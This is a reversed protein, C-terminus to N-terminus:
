PAKAETQKLLLQMQEMLRANAAALLSVQQELAVLRDAQKEVQKAQVNRAREAEIAYLTLEEIKALQKTVIESVGLGNDQMAKASPIEPLHRNTKIFTEVESLSRLKYDDAFVYDAGDTTVKIEKASITGIVTLENTPNTTGIGVKGAFYNKATPSSAYLDYRNNNEVTGGSYGDTKIFVGYANEITGSDSLVDAFVGYVNRIRATPASRHIGARAWVGYSQNLTGAFDNTSAYASGDVGIKYGSDEKTAPIKYNVLYGFLAKDYSTVSQTTETYNNVQLGTSSSSTGADTRVPSMYNVLVDGSFRSQGSTDVRIREIGQAIDYLSWDKNGAAGLIGMVWRSTGTDDISRFQGGSGSGTSGAAVYYNSRINGGVRLLESGGPNPDTGVTVPGGMLKHGGGGLTAYQMFNNNNDWQMTFKTQGTQRMMFWPDTGDIEVANKIYAKNGVRLSESGGPNPDTPGIIVSAESPQLRLPKNETGSHLSQIYGYDNVSDYGISVFKNTANPNGIRVAATAEASSNGALGLITTQGNLYAGNAARIVGGGIAVQNAGVSLPATGAIMTTGNGLVDFTLATGAANRVALASNTDAGVQSRIGSGTVQTNNVKFLYDGALSGSVTTQNLTSAGVVNLDGSVVFPQNSTTTTFTVNAGYSTGASNTAYARVYYLTSPSLGTLSSTFTGTGTGNNTKSNAITPDTTTSWCV